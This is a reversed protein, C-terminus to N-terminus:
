VEWDPERPTLVKTTRKIDDISLYSGRRESCQGTYGSYEEVTAIRLDHGYKIPEFFECGIYTHGSSRHVVINHVIFELGERAPYNHKTFVRHEGIQIM